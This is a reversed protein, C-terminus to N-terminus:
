GRCETLARGIKSELEIPEWPKTIPDLAEFTNAKLGESDEGKAAVMIVPVPETVPGSKLRELAAPGDPLPM